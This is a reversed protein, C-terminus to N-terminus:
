RMRVVKRTLASGGAEVRCLYVGSAVERGADDRGDWLAEHQGAGRAEGDLLTRVLRGATDYVQVTVQSPRLLDFALATGAGFPNPRNQHLKVAVGSDAPGNDDVGTPDENSLAVAVADEGTVAVAVDWDGDQDFDASAQGSPNNGVHVSLASTFTADGNNLIYTFSSAGVGETSIAVDLDHDFDFDGCCARGGAGAYHFVPEAFTGDGNNLLMALKYASGEFGSVAIDIDGDGDFDETMPTTAFRGITVTPGPVFGGSGDNRFLQVYSQDFYLTHYHKVVAIDPYEDTDFRGAALWSPDTASGGADYSGSYTLTGDGENLLVTLVRSTSIVVAVDNTGDGNLDEAIVGMPISGAGVSYSVATGFTGDGDNLLVSVTGDASNSTVIDPHSDADMRAIEVDEPGSGVPYSSAPGFTGDGDNLLVSVSGPADGVVALDVWGDGNLDGAAVDRPGTGVDYYAPTNFLVQAVGDGAIAFLALPAMCLVVARTRSHAERNM